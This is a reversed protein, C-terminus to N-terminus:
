FFSDFTHETLPQRYVYIIVLLTIFLDDIFGVLELLSQPIFRQCYLFIIATTCQSIILRNLSYIRKGHTSMLTDLSLWSSCYSIWDTSTYKQNLTLATSFSLM